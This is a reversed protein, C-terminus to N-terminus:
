GSVSPPATIVNLRLDRLTCLGEWAGHRMPRAGDQRKAGFSVRYRQFIEEVFARSGLVVGDSFYRVRCRLLTATSLVGDRELETRVTESDFGARSGAGEVEGQVYLVCRYKSAAQDWTQESGMLACLGKRALQNGAVAEGYGSHRYDKPDKVLGARVPNLDIYTAVRILAGGSGEVLLSKFRDEWLTGLRNQHRNYWISFRQKVLKMFASVDHMRRLYPQRLRDAEEAGARDRAESLQTAFTKVFEGSYFLRLRRLLEKDTIEQPEPVQLLVHFHNSLVAYTLIQVGCFDEAKRLISCFVEKQEDQFIYRREIIRSICHYFGQGEAKVRPMRM